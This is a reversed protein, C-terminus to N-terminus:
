KNETLGETIALTNTFQSDSNIREEAIKGRMKSIFGGRNFDVVLVVGDITLVVVLCLLVLFYCEATTWAVYTTGVVHESLKYNSIWMYGVYMALSLISVAIFLFVSWFKTHTSLKFTVVVIASSFVTLGIIWMDGGYGRENIAPSDLVFICFLFIMIAEIIGEAVWL